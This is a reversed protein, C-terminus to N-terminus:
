VKAASIRFFSLILYGTPSCHIRTGRQPLTALLQIEALLREIVKAANDPSNQAIYAHIEEM